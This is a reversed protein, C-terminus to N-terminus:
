YNETVKMDVTKTNSSVNIINKIPVTKSAFIEPSELVRFFSRTCAEYTLCRMKYILHPMQSESFDLSKRWIMCHILSGSSEERM